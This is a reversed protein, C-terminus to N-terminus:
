NILLSHPKKLDYFLPSTLIHILDSQNLVGSVFENLEAPLDLVIYHYDNVLISLVNLLKKSSAIDADKYSISVLDIGHNAELTFEKVIGPTCNEMSSINLSKYNENIGLKEPLEHKLDAPYIDLIVVSKNTEKRLSLALNLAYVSKGAGSYASFASIITSEFVTKQHISKNKLRRSLTKSLDIALHPIKNLIFNFDEKKIILIVSDNFAKATVSHIGDTLLSIIGFYKGRHLYEIVIDVGFKDKTYTVVRGTIVCYFADGNSGEEYIVQNKKYEEIECLSSVLKLSDDPLDEFLPLQRLVIDKNIPDM